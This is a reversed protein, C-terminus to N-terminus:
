RFIKGVLDYSKRAHTRFKFFINEIVCLFKFPCDRQFAARDVPVVESAARGGFIKFNIDDRVLLRRVFALQRGAVFDNVRPVGVGVVESVRAVVGAEIDAVEIKVNVFESREIPHPLVRAM